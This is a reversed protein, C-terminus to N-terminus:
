LTSGIRDIRQGLGAMRNDMFARLLETAELLACGFGKAAAALTAICFGCDLSIGRSDLAAMAFAEICGGGAARGEASLLAEEVEANFAERAM